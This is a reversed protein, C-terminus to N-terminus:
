RQLDFLGATKRGTQHLEVEIRVFVRRRRPRAPRLKQGQQCHGQAVHHPSAEVTRLRRRALLLRYGNDLGHMRHKQLNLPTRAPSPLKTESKPNRIEPKYAPE